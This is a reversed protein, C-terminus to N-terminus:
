ERTGMDKTPEKKGINQWSKTTARGEHVRPNGFKQGSNLFIKFKKWFFPKNTPSDRERRGEKGKISDGEWHNRKGKERKPSHTVAERGGGDYFYRTGVDGTYKKM